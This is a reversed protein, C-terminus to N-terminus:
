GNSPKIRTVRCCQSFLNNQLNARLLEKGKNEREARLDVDEGESRDEGENVHENEEEAEVDSSRLGLDNAERHPSLTHEPDAMHNVGQGGLNTEEETDTNPDPTTETREELTEEEEEEEDDLEEEKIVPSSVKVTAKGKSPLVVESSEEDGDDEVWYNFKM